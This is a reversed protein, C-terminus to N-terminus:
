INKYFRHIYGVGIAGTPYTGAIISSDEANYAFSYVTGMGDDLVYIKKWTVGKDSSYWVQRGPNTGVIVEGASIFTIGNYIAQASATNGQLDTVAISYATFTNGYDSSVWVKNAGTPMVVVDGVLNAGISLASSSSNTPTNVKKWTAGDDTSRMLTTFTQAENSFLALFTSNGVYKIDGCLNYVYGNNAPADWDLVTTGDNEYMNSEAIQTFAAGSNTSRYLKIRTTASADSTVGVIVTTGNAAIGRINFGAAAGGYSVETFSTGYTTSRYLKANPSTGAMVVGNGINCLAFITLETTTGAIRGRDTWTTGGNDSTYIKATGESGCVFKHMDVKVIREASTEGASLGLVVTKNTFPRVVGTSGMSDIETKTYVEMKTYADTIGYGAITTPKSTVSSFTHAHESSAKGNLQVQVNSTVGDVYNLETSTATIGLGPLTASGGGVNALVFEQTALAGITDSGMGDPAYVSLIRGDNAQLQLKGAAM